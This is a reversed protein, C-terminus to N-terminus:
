LSRARGVHLGIRTTRGPDCLMIKDINKVRIERIFYMGVNMCIPIYMCLM